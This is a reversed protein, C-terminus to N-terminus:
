QKRELVTEIKRLWTTIQKGSVPFNQFDQLGNDNCNGHDDLLEGHAVERLVAELEEIRKQAALYLVWEGAPHEDMRSSRDINGTMTYRNM